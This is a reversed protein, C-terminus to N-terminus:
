SDRDNRLSGLEWGWLEAIERERQSLAPTLTLAPIWIWRPVLWVWVGGGLAEIKLAAPM